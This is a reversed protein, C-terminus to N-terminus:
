TVADGDFDVAQLPPFKDGIRLITDTSDGAAPLAFSPSAALDLPGDASGAVSMIAAALGVVIGLCIAVQLAIRRPFRPMTPIEATAPAKPFLPVTERRLM